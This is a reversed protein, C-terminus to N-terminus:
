KKIAPKKSFRELDSKRLVVVDSARDMIKLFIVGVLAAPGFLLCMVLDSLTFVGVLSVIVQASLFACGLWVMPVFILLLITNM